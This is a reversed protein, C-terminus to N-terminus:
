RVSSSTKREWSGDALRILHMNSDVTGRGITSIAFSLVTAEYLLFQRDFSAILKKAYPQLDM